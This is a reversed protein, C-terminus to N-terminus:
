TENTRLFEHGGFKNKDLIIIKKDFPLEWGEPYGYGPDLKKVKRHLLYRNLHSEDHWVAIIDKKLDKEIRYALTEIMKLYAKSKGGNFAGMYYHQGKNKPIYALSQPNDEYTFSIRGKNYFGPHVLAMLDEKQPLITEDIEAICKTNANLFFIYDFQSLEEKVEYFMHFRLLTDYPWGLHQQEIFRVNPGAHQITQDTFVFYCKEINPLFHREMSQYFDQWFMAYKGTCIYLIAVKM